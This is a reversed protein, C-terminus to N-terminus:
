HITFRNHFWFGDLVGRSLVIELHENCLTADSERSRTEKLEPFEVPAVEISWLQPAKSFIALRFIKCDSRRQLIGPLPTTPAEKGFFPVVPGRNLKQDAFIGLLGGARLFEVPKNFGDKHSFLTTGSSGRKSRYWDDLYRNNLPRYIVGFPAELGNKKALEPIHNLAEWPGMHALLLIVGHGDETVSKMADLGHIELHKSLQEVNMRAFAFGSFLNASSRQFVEQVQQDMTMKLVEHEPQQSRLWENVVTLNKRVIERRKAMAKYCCYGFGRGLSYGLSIPVKELFTIFGRALIYVIWKGPGGFREQRTFKRKLM